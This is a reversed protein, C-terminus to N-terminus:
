PCCMGDRFHVHAAGLHTRADGSVDEVPLLATLPFFLILCYMYQVTSKYQMCYWVHACIINPDYEWMTQSSIQPSSM